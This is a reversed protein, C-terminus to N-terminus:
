KSKKLSKYIDDKLMQQEFARQQDRRPTSGEEDQMPDATPRPLPEPAVGMERSKLQASISALQNSQAVLQIEYSALKTSLNDILGQLSKETASVKDGVTTAGQWVVTCAGIFVSTVVLTLCNEVVKPLSINM